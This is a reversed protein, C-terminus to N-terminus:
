GARSLDQAVLPEIRERLMPLVESEFWPHRQFWPQNRPSPHPLPVFAPAYERWARVTETLSPKRRSGLFHQQAYQGILLTLQIKPLKELLSDLWLQACERRPPKDGGNGRGPYCFGMPIIAFQSEDHFTTADIGLWNRLRDGSADDWPIGSAHVRAGPAQGVILIRADAGARVIPRPGLPLHPVCARCARVDTLLSDLSSCSYKNM